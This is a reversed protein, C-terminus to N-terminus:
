RGRAPWLDHAPDSPLPAGHDKSKRRQQPRRGSAAQSAEGSVNRRQPKATAIQDVVVSIGHKEAGDRGTWNTLRTRGSVTIADGKSFDLLREANGGFSIMSVMTAEDGDIVRVPATTFPGTAGARSRPDTILTGVDMAYLTM